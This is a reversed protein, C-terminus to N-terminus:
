KINSWKKAYLANSFYEMAEKGIQKEMEDLFSPTNVIKTSAFRAYLSKLFNNIKEKGYKQRLENFIITPKDYRNVERDPSNNDTEVIPTETKSESARKNYESLLQNTFDKGIIEESIIFASYEAMGENLWDEPTGMNAMNWWYHAMEHTLM